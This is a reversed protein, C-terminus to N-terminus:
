MAVSVCVCVCICVFVDAIERYSCVTATCAQMVLLKYFMQSPHLHSAMPVSPIRPGKSFLTLFLAAHVQSCVSVCVCLSVFLSLFVYM